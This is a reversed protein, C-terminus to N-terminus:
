CMEWIRGEGRYVEQPTDYGLSQHPRETNYRQFYKGTECIAEKVNQYDKVYVEEQKYSRWLREVFINDFCRGKGAMSIRIKRDRM